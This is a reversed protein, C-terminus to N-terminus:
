SPSRRRRIRSVSDRHRDPSTASTAGCWHGSRSQVAPGSAPSRHLLLLPLQRRGAQSGPRTTSICWATLPGRAYGPSRSATTSPSAPRPLAPRRATLGTVPRRWRRRGRQVGHATVSSATAACLGIFSRRDNMSAVEPSPALGLIPAARRRPKWTARSWRHRRRRVPIAVGRRVAPAPGTVAVRSAEVAPPQGPIGAPQTVAERGTGGAGWRDPSAYSRVAPRAASLPAREIPSTSTM